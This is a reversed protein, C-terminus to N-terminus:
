EQSIMEWTFFHDFNNYRKKKIIDNSKSGRKYSSKQNVFKSKSFKICNIYKFIKYM